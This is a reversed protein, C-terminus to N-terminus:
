SLDLFFMYNSLASILFNNLKFITYNKWGRWFLIWWARFFLILFLYTFIKKTSQMCKEILAREDITDILLYKKLNLKKRGKCSFHSFIIFIRIRMLVVVGESHFFNCGEGESRKSTFNKSSVNLWYKSCLCINM